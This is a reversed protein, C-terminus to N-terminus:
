KEFKIGSLAAIRESEQNKLLLKKKKEFDAISKTKKKAELVYFIFLYIKRSIGLFFIILSKFDQTSQLFLININCLVYNNINKKKM